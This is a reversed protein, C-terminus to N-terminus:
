LLDNALFNLFCFSFSLNLGEFFFFFNGVVETNNITKIQTHTHTYIYKIPIFFFFLYHIINFLFFLSIGHSNFPTLASFM